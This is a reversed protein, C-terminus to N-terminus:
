TDSRMEEESTRESQYYNYVSTARDKGIIVALEEFSTKKIANVSRFATLLKEATFHGIGKICTLETQTMSKDRRQRHHMIGFRHAEDRLHQIVRQTESKKDVFLPVADNPRFIEELRKAIGILPIRNELKLEKLASYAASIQGKGGDVVILDPLISGEKMLRSYRRRIVERMTSFDDPKDVTQINFIRYEKRSPKGNRFCVM